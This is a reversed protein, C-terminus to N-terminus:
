NIIRATKLSKMGPKHEIWCGKKCNHQAAPLSRCVETPKFHYEALDKRHRFLAQRYGLQDGTAKGATNEINRAWEEFIPRTKRLDALIVGANRESFHSWEKKDENTINSPQLANCSGGSSACPNSDHMISGLSVSKDKFTAFISAIADGSCPLADIDLYLTLPFPSKILMQAHYWRFKWSGLHANNGGINKSAGNWPAMDKESFCQVGEPCAFDKFDTFLAVPVSALKPQDPCWGRKVKIARIHQAVKTGIDMYSKGGFAGM